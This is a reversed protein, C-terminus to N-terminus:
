FYSYIRTVGVRSNWSVARLRLSARGASRGTQVLCLSPDEVRRCPPNQRPEPWLGLGCSGSHSLGKSKKKKKELQSASTSSQVEWSRRRVASVAGRLYSGSFDCDLRRIASRQFPSQLYTCFVPTHNVKRSNDFGEFSITRPNCIRGEMHSSIEYPRTHAFMSVLNKVPM